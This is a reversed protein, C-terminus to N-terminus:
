ATKLCAKLQLPAMIIKQIAGPAASPPMCATLMANHAPLTGDLMEPFGTLCDVTMVPVGAAEIAKASGGTSVIEYGADALGQILLHGGSESRDRIGLM